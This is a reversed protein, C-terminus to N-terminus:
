IILDATISTSPDTLELSYANQDVFGLITQEGNSTDLTFLISNCLMPEQKGIYDDVIQYLKNIQWLDGNPEVAYGHVTASYNLSRAKRINAEWIARVENQADSSTLESEIVLQRGERIDEDLISGTQDVISSNETVGANNAAIPSLESKFIYSNFRQSIDFSFSANLVNNDFEGIIHQIGGAAQEASGSTIVINGDSNSTLLVQRKRAFQEIFSFANTGADAAAIDEAPNFSDTSVDEIVEISIGINSIVKEIIEKLTIPARIDDIATVTSDLLDNTKDRGAIFIIHDNADYSVEIIEIFGTLVTEDNVIVKCEEGGKFPLAEGEAAAAEFSFSNSLADLRLECSASTFNDYEIGSVELKMTM